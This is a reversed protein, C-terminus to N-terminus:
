SMRLLRKLLGWFGSSPHSQEPKPHEMVAGPTPATREHAGAPTLTSLERRLVDLDLEIPWSKRCTHCYLDESKARYELGRPEGSRKGCGPCMGQKFRQAAIELSEVSDKPQSM